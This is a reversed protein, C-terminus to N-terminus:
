HHLLEKVPRHQLDNRILLLEVELHHQDWDNVLLLSNSASNM